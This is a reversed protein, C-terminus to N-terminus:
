DGRKVRVKEFITLAAVLAYHGVWDGRNYFKKVSEVSGLKKVKDRIYKLNEETLPM